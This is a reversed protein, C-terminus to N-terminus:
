ICYTSSLAVFPGTETSFLQGELRLFTDRSQVLTNWSNWLKLHVELRQFEDSCNAIASDKASSFLTQIKRPLCLINIGTYTKKQTM